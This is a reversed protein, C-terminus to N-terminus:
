VDDGIETALKEDAENVTAEDAAREGDHSQVERREDAQEDDNERHNREDTDDNAPDGGHEDGCKLPAIPRVGKDDGGNEDDNLIKFAVNVRRADDAIGDTQM